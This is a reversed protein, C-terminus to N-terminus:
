GDGLDSMSQVAALVLKDVPFKDGNPKRIRKPPGTTAQGISEIKTPKELEDKLDPKGIKWGSKADNLLRMSPISEITDAMNKGKTSTKMAPNKSSKDVKTIGGKNQTEKSDKPTKLLEKTPSMYGNMHENSKSIGEKEEETKNKKSIRYFGNTEELVGKKVGNRLINDILNTIPQNNVKTSLEIKYYSSIYKKIATPVSGKAENLSKIAAVVMKCTTQVSPDNKKIGDNKPKDLVSSPKDSLSDSSDIKRHKV